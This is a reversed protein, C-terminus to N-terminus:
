VPLGHGTERAVAVDSGNLLIFADHKLTSAGATPPKIFCDADLLTIANGRARLRELVEPEEPSGMNRQDRGFSRHPFTAHEIGADIGAVKKQSRLRETNCRYRLGRNRVVRAM